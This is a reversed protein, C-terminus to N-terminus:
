VEDSCAKRMRIGESFTVYEMSVLGETRAIDPELWFTREPNAPRKGFALPVGPAIIDRLEEVFERLKRTDRSAVHFIGEAADSKGLAALIKACDTICLFNWMNECPSLEPTVGRGLTDMLYSVLTGANEGVGYVSYIRPWLFRIGLQRALLTGMHYASLKAAGYMMFPRPVVEGEKAIGHVVGYEAQSGAGLFSRCGCAKAARLADALYGLNSLQLDFNERDKGGSGNWALHFFADARIQRGALFSELQGLPAEHIQLRGGYSSNEEQLAALKERKGSMPRIIAYVEDGQELLQRCLATGIFGTAGTVICRKM